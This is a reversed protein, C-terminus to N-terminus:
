MEPPLIQGLITDILRANQMSDEFTILAEAGDLICRGFQEVELMYNHPCEVVIEERGEKGTIIIRAEGEKNFVEPM